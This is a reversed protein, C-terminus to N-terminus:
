LTRDTRLRSALEQLLAIAIGSEKNLLKLFRSQTIALCTVPGNAIVTASRTGGDLLAMEGFFSGKGLSLEPLTRRHVSVEGDLVVFLTDGPEGARVISTHDHFRRITAVAAVKKLRRSSLGAFLPVEAL